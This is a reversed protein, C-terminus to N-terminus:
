SLLVKFRGYADEIQSDPQPDYVDLSLKRAIDERAQAVSDYYGLGVAQMISNGLATAEVPGAVVQKGAFNATIQNLM